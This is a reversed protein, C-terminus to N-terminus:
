ERPNFQLPTLAYSTCGGYSHGVIMLKRSSFGAEQRHMSERASLRALHLPLSTTHTETPLFNFFFNLIDRTNDSWDVLPAHIHPRATYSPFSVTSPCLAVTLSRQTETSFLKGVGSKMLLDIRRQHFCLPWLLSGFRFCTETDVQLRPKVIM